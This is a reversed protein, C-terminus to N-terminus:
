LGARKAENWLSDLESLDTETIQRGQLKLANEIWKFRNEFRQNASRLAIEPEVASHRALNVTAFLIDGLEDSIRQQQGTELAQEFELLEEKVKEIVPKIHGWDFGATAARKQLKRARELAPLARPVEDLLSFQVVIAHKGGKNRKEEREIQKITEWNVVVQEASLNSKRGFQSVDGDPFVHPHFLM